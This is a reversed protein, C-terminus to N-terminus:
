TTWPGLDQSPRGDRGVVRPWPSDSGAGGTGAVGVALEHGVQLRHEVGLHAALAPATPVRHPRVGRDGVRKRM